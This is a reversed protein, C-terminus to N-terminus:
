YVVIPLEANSCATLSASVEVTHLHATPLVSILWLFLQSRQLQQQLQQLLM